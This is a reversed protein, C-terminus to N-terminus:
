WTVVFDAYDAGSDSQTQDGDSMLGVGQFEPVDADARGDEFHRRYEQRLDVSESQWVNTPGGSELIVTDQAVFLNRHRDCTWGKPGVSSWVYKLTYFRLGRKWTLYVVAASDGRGKTCEDGGRPLTIARWKWSVTRMRPRAEEPVQFGLVATHAPPRYAARIFPMVPDNVVSYYNVPGSEREIVRWQAVDIPQRHTPPGELQGGAALAPFLLAPLLV